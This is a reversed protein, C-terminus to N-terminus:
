NQLWSTTYLSRRTTFAIQKNVVRAGPPGRPPSWFFVHSFAQRSVRTVKVDGIIKTESKNYVEEGSASKNGRRSM